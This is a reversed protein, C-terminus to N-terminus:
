AGPIDYTTCSGSGCNRTNASVSKASGTPGGGPMSYNAASIIRELHTSQCKGCVLEVQQDSKMVLIELVDSCDICKFEYIPM